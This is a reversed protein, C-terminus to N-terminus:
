DFRPPEPMPERPLLELDVGGLRKFLEHIETGLGKSTEPVPERQPLESEVEGYKKFREHIATRSNQATGTSAGSRRM